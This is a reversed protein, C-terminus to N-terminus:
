TPRKKPRVANTAPEVYRPEVEKIHYEARKKPLLAYALQGARVARKLKLYLAAKRLYFRRVTLSLNEPDLDKKGIATRLQAALKRGRSVFPGDVGIEELRPRLDSMSMLRTELEELLDRPYGEALEPEPSALRRLAPADLSLNVAALTRLTLLWARIKAMTEPVQEMTVPNDNKAIAPDKLMNTLENSLRRLRVVEEEDIGFPELSKYDREVVKRLRKAAALLPESRLAAGVAVLVRDPAQYAVM